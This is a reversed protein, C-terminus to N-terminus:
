GMRENVRVEAVWALMDDEPDNGEARGREEFMNVARIAAQLTVSDHKGSKLAAHIARVGLKANLAVLEDDSMDFVDGGADVEGVPEDDVVGAMARAQGETMGADIYEQILAEKSM